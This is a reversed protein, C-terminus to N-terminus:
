RKFISAMLTLDIDDKNKKKKKKKQQEVPKDQIQNPLVINFEIDDDDVMQAKESKTYTEKPKETQLAVATTAKVEATKPQAEQKQQNTEKKSPPKDVTAQATSTAQPASKTDAPVQMKAAVEVEPPQHMGSNPESQNTTATPTDKKVFETQQQHRLKPSYEEGSDDDYKHSNKKRYEGGGSRRYTYSGRNKTVTRDKDREDLAEPRGTKERYGTDDRDYKISHKPKYVPKEAIKNTHNSEVKYEKNQEIKQTAQTPLPDKVTSYTSQIPPDPIDTRELLDKLQISLNELKAEIKATHAESNSIPRAFFIGEDKVQDPKQALPKAAIVAQGHNPDCISWYDNKKKKRKKRGRHEEHDEHSYDQDDREEDSGKKVYYNKGPDEYKKKVNTKYQKVYDDYYKITQYKEIYDGALENKEELIPDKKYSDLKRDNKSRLLERSQRARQDTVFKGHNIIVKMPSVTDNEQLSEMDTVHTQSDNPTELIPDDVGRVPTGRLSYDKSVKSAAELLEQRNTSLNRKSSAVSDEDSELWSNISGVASNRSSVQLLGKQGPKAPQISQKNVSNGKSQQQLKIDELEREKQLLIAKKKDLEKLMFDHKLKDEKELADLKLREEESIRKIELLNKELVCNKEILLALQRSETEISGSVDAARDHVAASSLLAAQLEKQEIDKQRQLVSEVKSNLLNELGDLRSKLSENQSKFLSIEQNQTALDEDTQMKKRLLGELQLKLSEEVDLTSTQHSM